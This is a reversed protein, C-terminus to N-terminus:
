LEYHLAWFKYVLFPESTTREDYTVTHDLARSAWIQGSELSATLAAQDASGVSLLREWGAQVANEQPFSTLSAKSLVEAKSHVRSM